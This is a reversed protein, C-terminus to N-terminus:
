AAMRLGLSALAQKVRAEFGLQQRRFDQLAAQLQEVGVESGKPLASHLYQAVEEDPRLAISLSCVAFASFSSLSTLLPQATSAELLSGVVDVAMSESPSNSTESESIDFFHSTGQDGTAPHELASYVADIPTVAGNTSASPSSVIAYTDCINQGQSVGTVTPKIPIPPRTDDEEQNVVLIHPGPMHTASGPPTSRSSNHATLKDLRARERQAILERMKKIEQEKEALAAPTAPETPLSTARTTHLSPSAGLRTPPRSPLQSLPPQHGNVAEEVEEESDSLDIVIRRSHTIGAFSNTKRRFNHQPPHRHHYTHPRADMDVFDAAVPRKTNRRSGLSHPQPTGSGSSSGDSAVGNREASMSRAYGELESFPPVLHSSSISDASMERAVSLDPLQSTSPDDGTSLGPILEDVDMRDDADTPASVPEISKLFDDVTVPAVAPTPTTEKVDKLPAVSSSSATAAVQKKRSALVAKRALLEQRRQQEMDILSPSTPADESQMPIASLSASPVFPAATASLPTGDVSSSAGQPATPKKPLSPHPDGVSLRSIPAGRPRQSSASPSLPEPSAYAQSPFLPPPLGSTDLNAPLCLNLEIFVYYIIERSLGCNVLYDPPVGWGLLDLVIDKATDYQAQTMALGPRAHEEDISYMDYDAVPSYRTLNPSSQISSPPPDYLVHSSSETKVSVTSISPSPPVLPSLIPREKPQKIPASSTPPVRKPVQPSKPPPMSESDSIEGEERLDEDVDMPGPAPPPPPLTPPQVATAPSSVTPTVASVSSSKAYPDESGYDLQISPPGSFLPRSPLVALSDTGDSGKRRKSKLTKLAAARLSAAFDEAPAAVPEQLAGISQQVVNSGSM